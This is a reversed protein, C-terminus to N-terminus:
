TMSVNFAPIVDTTADVGDLILYWTDSKFSVTPSNVKHIYPLIVLVRQPLISPYNFSKNLGSLNFFCASSSANFGFASSPLVYVDTGAQAASSIIPVIRAICLSAILSALLLKISLILLKM